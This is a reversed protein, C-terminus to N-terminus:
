GIDLTESLRLVFPDHTQRHRIILAPLMLTDLITNNIVM